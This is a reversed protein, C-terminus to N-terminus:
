KSHYAMIHFNDNYISITLGSPDTAITISEYPSTHVKKIYPKIVHTSSLTNHALILARSVLYNKIAELYKHYENKRGDIFTYIVNRIGHDYEKADICLIDVYNSLGLDRMVKVAYDIRDCNNDLSVVHSGTEKAAHVLWLTSFGYGTGIEVVVGKRHALIFKALSYLVYATNYDIPNIGYIFSERYVEATKRFFNVDYGRKIFLAAGNDIPLLSRIFGKASLEKGLEPQLNIDVIANLVMILSNSNLEELKSLLVRSPISMDMLIIDADRFKSVKEIGTLIEGLVQEDITSAIRLKRGGAKISKILINLLRLVNAYVTM